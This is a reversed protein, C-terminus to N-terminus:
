PLDITRSGHDTFTITTTGEFGAIEADLRHLAGDDVGIWYTLPGGGDIVDVAVDDVSDTRVFTAASQAVLLPNDREPGAAGVILAIVQDLPTNRPDAARVSWEGDEPRLAVEQESWAVETVEDRREATGDGDGDSFTTLTARGTHDAWDVDGDLTLRTGPGFPVDAEVSAGGSELNRLLVQSLASAQEDTLPQPSADSGCASSVALGAVVLVWGVTKAAPLDPM